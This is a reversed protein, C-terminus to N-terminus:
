QRNSGWQKSGGVELVEDYLKEYQEAIKSIEFHEMAYDFAKQTRVSWNVDKLASLILRSLEKIDHAPHLLAMEENVCEMNEPIDSAIIPTKAFMAEIIAGPLGEYHSPFVFYDSAKLLLPIDSRNGLLRVHHQLSLKKIEDELVGQYPGEGAIWLLCDKRQEMVRHFAQLLDLQGKREILRSVNIFVKRNDPNLETRLTQIQNMTIATFSALSRGRYIVKIKNLSVRLARSNTQKISESNSVFLDVKKATLADWQQLVGLKIRISLSELHYRQKSYSNNVFSNILPINDNLPLKRSVMDAMFLTAHILAPNLHQIRQWVVKAIQGYQYSHPLSINIVAIGLAEFEPQLDNAKDFLQVFVPNYKKFCSTIELLSREAGGTQLTDILFVVTKKM